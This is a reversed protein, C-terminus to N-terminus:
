QTLISALLYASAQTSAAATGLSAEKAAVLEKALATAAALQGTRHLHCASVSTPIVPACAHM